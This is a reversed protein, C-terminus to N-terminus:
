LHLRTHPLTCHMDSNHVVRASNEAMLVGGWMPIVTNIARPLRAHPTIRPPLPGPHGDHVPEHDHPEWFRAFPDIRLEVCDGDIPMEDIIPVATHHRPLYPWSPLNKSSRSWRRCSQHPSQPTPPCLFPRGQSLVM